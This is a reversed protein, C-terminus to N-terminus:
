FRFSFSLVFVGPAFSLKPILQNYATYAIGVSAFPCVQTVCDYERGYGTVAGIRASLEVYDYPQWYRAYDILYSQKYYSNKFSSIAFGHKGARYELGIFNHKANYQTTTDIHQSWVKYTIEFDHDAALVPAAFVASAACALILKKSLVM